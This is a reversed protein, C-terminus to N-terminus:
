VCVSLAAHDSPVTMQGNMAHCSFM